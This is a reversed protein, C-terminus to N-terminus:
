GSVNSTGALLSPGRRASGPASYFSISMVLQHIHNKLVPKDMRGSTGGTSPGAHGSQAILLIMCPRTFLVSSNRGASQAVVVTVEFRGM